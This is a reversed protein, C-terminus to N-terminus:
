KRIKDILNILKSIGKGLKKIADTHNKIHTAYYGMKEVETRQIEATKNLSNLIFDATFGPKDKISNFFPVICSDMDKVATQPHLTEAENLNLSNDIVFWLGGENWVRLKKKEQNYHKALADKMKGYHQKRVSFLYKNNIKFSAGLKNELSQIIRLIYEIADNRCLEAKSNIFSGKEYIIITRDFLHIKHDKFVLKQGRNALQRYKIDHKDLYITRKNWNLIKPLKFKFTFGHGRITDDTSKQVEKTSREAEFDRVTEWVGYGLKRIYGQRKLSSLYYNLNSKSKLGLDKFSPLKNNRSVYNYISFYLNNKTNIKTSRPLQYNTSRKM